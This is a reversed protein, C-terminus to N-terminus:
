RAGSSVAAATSASPHYLVRSRARKLIPMEENDSARLIEDDSKAEVDVGSFNLGNQIGMGCHGLRRHDASCGLSIFLNQGKNLRRRTRMHRFSIQGFVGCFVKGYLRGDCM